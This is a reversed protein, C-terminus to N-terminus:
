SAFRAVNYFAGRTPLQMAAVLPANLRLRTWKRKSTTSFRREPKQGSSSTLVYWGFARKAWRTATALVDLMLVAAVSADNLAVIRSIFARRSATSAASDCPVCSILM